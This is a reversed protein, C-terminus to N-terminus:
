VVFFLLLAVWFERLLGHPRDRLYAWLAPALPAQSEAAASLLQMMEEQRGQRYHLYAFLMWGYVLLLLFVFPVGYAFGVFVLIAGFGVVLALLGALTAFFAVFRKLGSM